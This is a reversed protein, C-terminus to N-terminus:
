EKHYYMRWISENERRENQRQRILQRTNGIFDQTFASKDLMHEYVTKLRSLREDDKMELKGSTIILLLEGLDDACSGMVQDRVLAVYSLDASSMLDRPKIGNFASLISSQLLLIEAIRADNRIVPNVRKLASIFLDHLKFEGSTIDRVTQLGSGVISYGKRAYDMYVQLAAIQQLLYKKQTKKQKFIEAWTQGHCRGTTMLLYFLVPLLLVIRTNSRRKLADIIESYM